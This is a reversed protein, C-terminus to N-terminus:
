IHLLFAQTMQALTIARNLVNVKPSYQTVVLWICYFRSGCHAFYCHSCSLSRSGALSGFLWSWSSQFADRKKYRATPVSVTPPIPTREYFLEVMSDSCITDPDISGEPWTERDTTLISPLCPYVDGGLHHDHRCCISTLFECTPIIMPVIVEM